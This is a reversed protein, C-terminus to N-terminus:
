CHFLQEQVEEFKTIKRKYMQYVLQARKRFELELEEMSVGYRKSIKEFVMRFLLM